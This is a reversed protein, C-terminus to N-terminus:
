DRTSDKEILWMGNQGQIKSLGYLLRANKICILLLVFMCALFSGLMFEKGGKFYAIYINMLPNIWFAIKSSKMLLVILPRSSNDSLYILSSPCEKFSPFPAFGGLFYTLHQVSRSRPCDVPRFSKDVCMRVDALMTQRTKKDTLCNIQVRTGNTLENELAKHIEQLEYPESRPVIHARKLATEVAYRSDLGMTVNFYLLESSLNRLNQSCTGHKEWEHKWLSRASKTPYLNPWVKSLRREIPEILKGDFKKPIGDCFQPYSGNKYNPWLGHISWDPSGEPVECSDPVSDDDARCVAPAHIRTLMLYDFESGIRPWVEDNTSIADTSGVDFRWVNGHVSAIAMSLLFMKRSIAIWTLLFSIM